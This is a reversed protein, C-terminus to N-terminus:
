ESASSIQNGQRLQNAFEQRGIQLKLEDSDKDFRVNSAPISALDNGDVGVADDLEIYLNVQSGASASGIGAVSINMSGTNSRDTDSDRLAQSLGVHKVKGIKQGDRDVVKKGKLREATIKDKLKDASVRKVDHGQTASAHNETHMQSTASRPVNTNAGTSTGSQALAGIPLVLSGAVLLATLQTKTKM